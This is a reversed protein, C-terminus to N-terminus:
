LPPIVEFEVGHKRLVSKIKSVERRKVVYIWSALKRGGLEEVLKKLQYSLKMKLSRDPPPKVVVVVNEELRLLAEGRCVGRWFVEMWRSKDVRKYETKVRLYRLLERFEEPDLGIKKKVGYIYAAAFIRYDGTARAVAYLCLLILKEEELKEILEKEVEVVAIYDGVNEVLEDSVLIKWGSLVRDFKGLEIIVKM